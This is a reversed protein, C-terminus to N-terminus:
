GLQAVHILNLMAIFAAALIIYFLRLDRKTLDIHSASKMIFAATAINLPNIWGFDYLYPHVSVSQPFAILDPFYGISGILFIKLFVVLNAKIDEVNLYLSFLPILIITSTIPIWRMLPTSGGQWDPFVLAQFHNQMRDTIGDLGSRARIGSGSGPLSTDGLFYPLM